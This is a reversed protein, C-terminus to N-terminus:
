KRGLLKDVDEKPPTFSFPKTDTNISDRELTISKDKDHRTISKDHRTIATDMDSINAISQSNIPYGILIYKQQLDSVHKKVKPNTIEKGFQFEIYDVILWYDKKLVKIREKSDNILKLALEQDIKGVYLNVVDFDPKWVGANDCQCCLYDWFNRHLPDLGRYWRDEWRKTESLRKSM